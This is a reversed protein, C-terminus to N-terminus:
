NDNQATPNVPELTSLIPSRQGNRTRVRQVSTAKWGAGLWLRDTPHLPLMPLPGIHAPWNPLAPAAFLNLRRLDTSLHRWTPLIPGEVSLIMAPSNLQSLTLLERSWYEQEAEWSATKFPGPHSMVFLPAVTEPTIGIFILQTGEDSWSSDEGCLHFPGRALIIRGDSHIEPSQVVYEGGLEAHLRVALDLDHTGSLIMLDPRLATAVEIVESSPQENAEISWQLVRLGDKPWGVGSVCQQVANLWPPLNAPADRVPGPPWPVRVLVFTAIIGLLVSASLLRARNVWFLYAILVGTVDLIPEGQLLAASWRNADAFWGVSVGSLCLSFLVFLPLGWTRM